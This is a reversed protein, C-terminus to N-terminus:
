QVHIYIEVGTGRTTSNSPCIDPPSYIPKRARQSMKYAHSASMVEISLCGQRIVPNACHLTYIWAPKYNRRTLNLISGEVHVDYHLTHGTEVYNCFRETTHTTEYQSMYMEQTTPSLVVHSILAGGQLYFEVPELDWVSPWDAAPQPCHEEYLSLFTPLEKSQNRWDADFHSRGKLPIGRFITTQQVVMDRAAASVLNVRTCAVFPLFM